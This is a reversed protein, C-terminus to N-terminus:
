PGRNLPPSYHSFDVGPSDTEAVCRSTPFGFALPTINNLTSLLPLPVVSGPRSTLISSFVNRCASLLMCIHFQRAQGILIILRAGLPLHHLFADHCPELKARFRSCGLSPSKVMSTAYISILM